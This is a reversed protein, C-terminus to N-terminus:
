SSHKRVDSANNAMSPGAPIEAAVFISAVAATKQLRVECVEVSASLPVDPLPGLM